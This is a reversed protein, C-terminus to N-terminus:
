SCSQGLRLSELNARQVELYDAGASEETLGELPDLVATAAGTEAAVTEAVAPDVLTEFYITRVGNAAVFDTVEALRGADPEEEPSLGSIGLQDFGYRQALYGFAEHSTVLTRDTCGALAQEFEADLAMLEGTLAEANAAYTQAGEPDVEALRAGVAEVVGALRTPDLWSHPDTAGAEGEVHEEEAHEEEAHEEGEHPDGSGALDLGAAPAVDLANEGGESALADDVGPQFGGQHVVLDAEALTAVDRPSLELDHPEAGPATLGTVTARDGAVRETVFQLPYFAAVVDLGGEEGASAQSGGGCATLTLAAATLCTLLAAPRKM